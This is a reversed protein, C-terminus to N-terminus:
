RYDPKEGYPLNRIASLIDNPDIKEETAYIRANRTPQASHAEGRNAIAAADDALM